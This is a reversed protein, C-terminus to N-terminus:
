KQLDDIIINIWTQIFNLDRTFTKDEPEIADSEYSYVKGNLYLVLYNAYEKGCGNNSLFDRNIEQPLNDYDFLKIEWKIM